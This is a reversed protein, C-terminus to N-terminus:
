ELMKLSARVRSANMPLFVTRAVAKQGEKSLVARLFEKALPDIPKGPTKNVAIYISRSLPYAGAAVDDFSGILFPGQENEALAVVKINPLVPANVEETGTVNWRNGYGIGYKDEGVRAVIADMGKRQDPAGLRVAHQESIRENFEGGLLIRQEIYNCIGDPPQLGYVNISKDAWEGTLGLQGWTTIAEKYGRKRTKSYIADVQALTLKKLPNDKNVVINVSPTGEDFTYSGIGVPVVMPKFVKNRFIYLEAPMPERTTFGVNATGECLSICASQSSFLATRVRVSPHATRFIVLWLDVLSETRSPKYLGGSGVIKLDGLLPPCPNYSPLDPDLTVSQGDIRQLAVGVQTAQLPLCIIAVLAACGVVSKITKM